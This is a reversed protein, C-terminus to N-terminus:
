PLSRQRSLVGFSLLTLKCFLHSTLGVLPFRVTEDVGQVSYAAQQKKLLDEDVQALRTCSHSLPLDAVRTTSSLYSITSVLPVWANRNTDWELETGDQTEVMWKQSTRDYYPESTGASTSGSPNASSPNNSQQQSTSAVPPPASMTALQLLRPITPSSRLARRSPSESTTQHFHM